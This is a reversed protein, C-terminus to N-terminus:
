ASKLEMECNAESLEGHPAVEGTRIFGFKRYFGEARANDEHVHLRVRELGDLGLAWEVAAGFLERTVGNGRAEPRVFVGVLQAQRQEVARGFIDQSGPEEVLAVVTGAWGGDAAVAVFQRAGTGHSAGAARDQWFSDPRELAQEYTELFALPAVPDQLAALRLEKVARWEESRVPRIEYDM